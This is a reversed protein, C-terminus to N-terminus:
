PGEVGEAIPRTAPSETPTSRERSWWWSNAPPFALRLSDTREAERAFELGHTSPNWRVDLLYDGSPVWTGDVPRAVFVVEARDYCNLTSPMGHLQEEVEMVEDYPEEPEWYGRSGAPLFTLPTVDVGNRFYRSRILREEVVTFELGELAVEAGGNRRIELGAVDLWSQDHDRKLTIPRGSTNTFVIRFEFADPRRSQTMASPTLRSVITEIRNDWLDVRPRIHIEASDGFDRPPELAGSFYSPVERVMRASTQRRRVVRDLDVRDLRFDGDLLVRATRGESGLIRVLWGAGDREIGVISATRRPPDTSLDNTFDPPLHEELGVRELSAEPSRSFADLDKELNRLVLARAAAASEARLNSRGIWLSNAWTKLSFSVIENGAVFFELNEHGISEDPVPGGIFMWWYLGTAQHYASLMYRERPGTGKRTLEVTAGELELTPDSQDVDLGLVHKQRQQAVTSKWSIDAGPPGSAFAASLPLLAFGAALLRLLSRVYQALRALVAEHHGDPALTKM